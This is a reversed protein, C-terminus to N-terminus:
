AEKTPPADHAAVECRVIRQETGCVPCLTTAVMTDNEDSIKHIHDPETNSGPCVM